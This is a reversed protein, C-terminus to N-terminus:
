RWNGTSNKSTADKEFTANTIRPFDFNLFALLHSLM